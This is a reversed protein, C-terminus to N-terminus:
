VFYNVFDALVIETTIYKHESPCKQPPGCHLNPSFPGLVSGGSAGTPISPPESAPAGHLLLPGGWTFVAFHLLRAVCEM